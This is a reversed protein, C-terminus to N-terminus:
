QKDNWLFPNDIHGLAQAEEQRCNKGILCGFFKDKTEVFLQTIVTGIANKFNFIQFEM